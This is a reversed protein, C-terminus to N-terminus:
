LVNKIANFQDNMYERKKEHIENKDCVFNKQSTECNKNNKLPSSKYIKCECM